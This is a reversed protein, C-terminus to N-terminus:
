PQVKLPQKNGKKMLKAYEKNAAAISRAKEEDQTTFQGLGEKQPLTRM